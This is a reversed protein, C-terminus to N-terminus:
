FERDSLPQFVARVTGQEGKKRRSKLERHAWNFFPPIAAYLFANEELAYALELYGAANQPEMEGSARAQEFRKVYEEMALARPDDAAPKESGSRKDM